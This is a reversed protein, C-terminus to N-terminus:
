GYKFSLLAASTMTAVIYPSVRLLSSTQYERALKSLWYASVLFCFIGAAHAPAGAFEAVATRGPLTVDDFIFAIAGGLLFVSALLLYFVSIRRRYYSATKIEATPRSMYDDKLLFLFYVNFIVGKLMGIM